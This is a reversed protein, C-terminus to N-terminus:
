IRHMYVTRALGIYTDQTYVHTHTYTHTKHTYTHTHTHIHTHIYTHTYTHTHIHRTHTKHTHAYLQTKHTCTYTHTTHTNHTEQTYSRINADQTYVRNQGARIIVPVSPWHESSTSRCRGSAGVSHTWADAQCLGVCTLMPLNQLM